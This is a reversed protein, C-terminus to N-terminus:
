MKDNKKEPEERKRGTVLQQLRRRCSGVGQSIRAADTARFGSLGLRYVRNQYTVVDDIGFHSKGLQSNKKRRERM